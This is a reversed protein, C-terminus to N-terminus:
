GQLDYGSKKFSESLADLLEPNSPPNTLRMDDIPEVIGRGFFHAWYRNVLARAFFANPRETMWDVLKHRPDEGASVQVVKGGLGRPAMTEGTKPHAVSGTRQNYIVEGDRGNRQAQLDPKRGVRAFFAAFGYYDHQSWQEFPHHHCKACQLR